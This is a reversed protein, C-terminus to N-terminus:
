LVVVRKSSKMMSLTMHLHLLWCHETQCLLTLQNKQFCLKINEAINDLFPNNAKRLYLDYPSSFDPDGAEGCLKYLVKHLESSFWCFWSKGFIEDGWVKDFEHESCLDIITTEIAVEVGKHNSVDHNQINTKEFVQKMFNCVSIWIQQYVVSIDGFEFKALRVMLSQNLPKM